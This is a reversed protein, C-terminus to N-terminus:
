LHNREHVDVTCIYAFDANAYVQDEVFREAGLTASLVVQHVNLDTLQLYTCYLQVRDIYFWMEILASASCNAYPMVRELYYELIIPPNM